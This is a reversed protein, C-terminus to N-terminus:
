WQIEAPNRRIPKISEAGLSGKGVWGHPVWDISDRPTPQCDRARQRGADGRRDLTQVEAEGRSGRDVTGDNDGAHHEHEGM